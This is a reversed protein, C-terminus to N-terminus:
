QEWACGCGWPIRGGGLSAEQLISSGGGSDSASQSEGCTATWPRGCMSHEIWAGCSSESM